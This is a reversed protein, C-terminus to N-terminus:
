PDPDGSGEPTDSDEGEDGPDPMDPDPPPDIEWAQSTVLTVTIQEAREPTYTAKLTELVPMAGVQRCTAESQTPIITGAMLENITVPANPMLPANQPIDIGLPAPFARMITAKADAELDARTSANSDSINDVIGYYDSVRRQFQTEKPWSQPARPSTNYYFRSSRSQGPSSLWEYQYEPTDKSDGDFWTEVRGNWIAFRDFWFGDAANKWETSTDRSLEVWASVVDEPVVGTVFLLLDTGSKVAVPPGEIFPRDDVTGDALKGHWCLSLTTEKDPDTSTGLTGTPRVTLIASIQQGKAVTIAQAKMSLVMEYGRYDSEADSDKAPLKVGVKGYTGGAATSWGSTLRAVTFFRTTYPEFGVANVRLSPNVAFNTVVPEAGAIAPLLDSGTLLAAGWTEGGTSYARTALSEGDEFVTVEAALDRGSRVINTRAVPNISAWFFIRRGMVSWDIGAEVLDDLADIIYGDTKNYAATYTPGKLSRRQLYNRVNPDDYAFAAQALEYALDVANGTRFYSDLRRKTFWWSVDKALITVRTPSYAIRTLPGEWVRDGDRYIVLEHRVTRMRGLWACDCLGADVTLTAAGVDSLVREWELSLVSGAEFRYLRQQGGRDYLYATAEGCGLTQDAVIPTTM